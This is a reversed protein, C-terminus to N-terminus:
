IEGFFRSKLKRKHVQVKPPPVRGGKNKEMWAAFNAKSIRYHPHHPTGTDSAPLRGAQVARRITTGSLGSLAAAEKISLYERPPDASSAVSPKAEILRRLDAVEARIEVLQELCARTFPVAPRGPEPSPTSM